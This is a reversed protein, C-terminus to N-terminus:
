AEEQDVDRCVKAKMQGAIVLGTITQGRRLLFYINVVDM